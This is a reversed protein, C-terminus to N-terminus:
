RVVGLATLTGTLLQEVPEDAILRAYAIGSRACAREVQGMWDAVATRYRALEHETLGVEIEQGTESDALRLDGGLDPELDARGLLHVVVADGRAAALTRIVDAWGEDLLDTVLALPGRSHGASAKRIADALGGPGGAAVALLRAEVQPLTATGRFWPGPDCGSGALVVRVRDGGGAAVAALAIGVQRARDLKGGFRMSASCDVVLRLAAEDEAQFLRVLLKGLRAHASPDVWRPDDGPVYERYDAFDLSSGYRRSPHAGAYRGDVRRRASLRLRALRGLLEPALLHPTPQGSV